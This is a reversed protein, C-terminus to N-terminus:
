PLKLPPLAPLAPIGSAHVGWHAAFGLGSALLGIAVIAAIIGVVPSSGKSKGSAGSSILNAISGSAQNSDGANQGGSAIGSSGNSSGSSGNATGSSGNILGSSGGVNGGQGNGSGSSGSVWGASGPAGNGKETVVFTAGNTPESTGDKYTVAVPITIDDLPQNEKPKFTVAGTKGDISVQDNSVGAPLNGLEFKQVADAPVQSGDKSTVTPVAFAVGGQPANTSDPYVADLASSMAPDILDAVGDKDKDTIGPNGMGDGNTDQVKGDPVDSEDSNKISDGDTDEDGDSTGDGDTDPNKPDLGAAIEDDNNVGDGDIDPDESNKIGDGDVDGDPGTDTRPDDKGNPDIIDAVDNDNRDTIGPNGLGDGDTDEVPRDTINGDKDRQKPVFSEDSNKIGDKDTDEEGDSTGDGDTDPNLPNLGAAKEDDNNVGDGDADPDYKNPVGDGDLDGNPDLIVTFTAGNTAETGGEAYTVDVPITYDGPIVKDSPTFTVKGTAADFEVDNQSIGQPLAGRTYSKVVGAPAAQGDATTVQPTASATDQQQVEVPAPYAADYKDVASTDGGDGPNSSEGSTVTFKATAKDVTKDKYTVIVPVAVNLPRDKTAEAEDTVVLTVSGKDDVKATVGRPASWAPDIQFGDTDAEGNNGDPDVFTIPNPKSGGADTPKVVEITDQYKADFYENSPAQEESKDLAYTDAVYVASNSFLVRENPQQIKTVYSSIKSRRVGDIGDQDTFLRSKDVPIDVITASSVGLTAIPDIVRWADDVFFYGSKGKNAPNPTVIVNGNADFASVPIYVPTKDANQTDYVGNWLNWLVVKRGEDDDSGQPGRVAALVYPDIHLHYDFGKTQPSLGGITGYSISVPQYQKYRLVTTGAPAPIPRKDPGMITNNPPVLLKATAQAALWLSQNFDTPMGDDQTFDVVAGNWPSEPAIRVRQGEKEVNEQMRSDVVFRDVGTEAIIQEIPTNLTVDIDASVQQNQLTVAEFIGWNGTAFGRKSPDEEVGSGTLRTHSQDYIARWVGPMGAYPDPAGNPNGFWDVHGLTDSEVKEYWRQQNNFLYMANRFKSTDSVKVGVKDIYPALKPDFKLYTWQIGPSAAARSFLSLRFSHDSTQGTYSIGQRILTTNDLLHYNDPLPWREVSGSATITDPSIMPPNIVGGGTSDGEAAHALGASDGTSVPVVFSFALATSCAAAALRVRKLSSFAESVHPAHQNKKM